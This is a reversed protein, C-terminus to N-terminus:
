VQDANEEAPIGCTSLMLKCKLDFGSPICEYHMVIPTSGSKNFHVLCCVNLSLIPM